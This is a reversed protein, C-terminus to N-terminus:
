AHGHQGLPMGGSFVVDDADKAFEKTKLWTTWGLRPAYERAETLRCSPVDAAKLLLQIDFDLDLGAFFKTFEVLVPYAEGSPLLGHFTGFDMAGLEVRFRAQQDWVTTGAVATQGLVNNGGANGLRTWDESTLSLWAGIFQRIKVPVGFYDSLCHQLGEASHPRQGILGTYHLLSRSDMNLRERLNGTGLGMLAFLHQGWEDEKGQSLAREYGVAFHHKEWARYFLSVMRHNLLDLFEFLTRDKQQVRELLLETYHLPLVGQPGTLGMFAVTMEVPRAPLQPQRIAYIESPPFSLALRARFRVVEENPRATRGVSQRGAYARELLRVAQFFGFRYGRSTLEEKLTLPPDPRRIETAM